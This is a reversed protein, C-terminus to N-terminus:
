PVIPSFRGVAMVWLQHIARTCAVHLKRRADPQDPYRRPTADPIVVVDFELGKVQSVGCLFESSRNPGSGSTGPAKRRTGGATV